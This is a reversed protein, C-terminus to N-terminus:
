NWFAKQLVLRQEECRSVCLFRGENDYLRYFNGNEAQRYTMRVGNIISKTQKENLDIREYEEFIRDTPILINELSGNEKLDRIEDLTYSMTISFGGAKTRRLTNM